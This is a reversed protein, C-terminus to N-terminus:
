AVASSIFMNTTVFHLQASLKILANWVGHLDICKPPDIPIRGQSGPLKLDSERRKCALLVTLEWFKATSGPVMRRRSSACSVLLTSRSAWETPQHGAQPTSSLTLVATRLTPPVCFRVEDVEDDTLNAGNPIYERCVAQYM